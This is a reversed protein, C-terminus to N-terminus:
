APDRYFRDPRMWLFMSEKERIIAHILIGLATGLRGTALGGTNCHTIVSAEDPLLELGNAAIRQCMRIDEEHIRRAESLLYEYIKAVSCHRVEAAKAGM